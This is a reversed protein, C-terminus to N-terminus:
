VIVYMIKHMLMFDLVMLLKQKEITKIEKTSNIELQIKRHSKKIVPFNENYLIACNEMM